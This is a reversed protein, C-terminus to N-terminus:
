KHYVSAVLTGGYTGWVCVYVVLVNAHFYAEDPTVHDDPCSPLMTKASRSGSRFIEINIVTVLAM